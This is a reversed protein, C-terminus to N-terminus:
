RFNPGSVWGVLSYRVGSTITSVDHVVWSPFFILTGRTRPALQPESRQYHFRLDGGEYDKADSLQLSFSLKRPNDTRGMDIHKNYAGNQTASYKTFQLPLIKDLDFRFHDRNIDNVAGALAAYIWDFDPNDANMWAIDSIRYNALSNDGGVGAPIPGLELGQKIITDLENSSFVNKKAIWSTNDIKPTALPWTM